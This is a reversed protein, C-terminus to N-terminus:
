PQKGQKVNPTPFLLELMKDDMGVLDQHV